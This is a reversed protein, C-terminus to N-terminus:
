VAKLLSIQNIATEITILTLSGLLISIAASAFREHKDFFPVNKFSFQFFYGNFYAIILFYGIGTILYLSWSNAQEAFYTFIGLTLAWRMWEFFKPTVALAISDWDGLSRPYKFLIDKQTM